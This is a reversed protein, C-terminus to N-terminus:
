RYGPSRLNVLDVISSKVPLFSAKIIAHSNRTWWVDNVYYCEEDMVSRLCFFDSRSM